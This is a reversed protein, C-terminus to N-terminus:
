YNCVMQALELLLNTANQKGMKMMSRLRSFGTVTIDGFAIKASPLELPEGSLVGYVILKGGKSKSHTQDIGVQLCVSWWNELM